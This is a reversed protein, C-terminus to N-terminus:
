RVAHRHRRVFSDPGCLVRRRESHHPRARGQLDRDRVRAADPGARRPRERHRAHGDFGVMVCEDTTPCSVSTLNVAAAFSDTAPQPGSSLPDVEEAGNASGTLCEDATPCALARGAAPSPRPASTAPAQPNFTLLRSAADLTVCEDSTACSVANLQANGCVHICPHDRTASDARDIVAEPQITPSAPDFTDEYGVYGSLSDAGGVVTCQSVTPCSIATLWATSIPQPVATQPSAPDFTIEHGDNTIATCQDPSPCAVDSPALGPVFTTTTNQQQRPNFVVIAGGGAPTLNSSGDQPPYESGVAM